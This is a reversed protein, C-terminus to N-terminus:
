LNLPICGPYLGPNTIAVRCVVNGAPDRVADLAAYAKQLDINANNRTKQENRSNVFSVDWKWSSLDGNIGVNAVYGDTHSEPQLPPAQMMMKSFTFQTDRICM